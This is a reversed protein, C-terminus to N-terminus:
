MEVELEPCVASISCAASGGRAPFCPQRPSGVDRGVISATPIFVKPSSRTRPFTVTSVRMQTGAPMQAPPMTVSSPRPNTDHFSFSVRPTASPAPASPSPTHSSTQTPFALEGEVTTQGHPLRGGRRGPAHIREPTVATLTGESHGVEHHNGADILAGSFVIQDPETRTALDLRTAATFHATLEITVHQTPVRTAALEAAIRDAKPISCWPLGYPATPAAGAIATASAATAASIAALTLISKIRPM